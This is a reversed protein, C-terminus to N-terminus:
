KGKRRDRIITYFFYITLVLLVGTLSDIDIINM